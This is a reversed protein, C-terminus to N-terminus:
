ATADLDVDATVVQAGILVLVEIVSNELLQEVNAVKHTDLAKHEASLSAFDADMGLRELHQALTELWQGDHLNLVTHGVVGEVVGLQAIALAIDVENNVLAHLIGEQLAGSHNAGHTLHEVISTIGLDLSGGQLSNGATGASAGEDGVEVRQVDVHVHADGGLKVQFSQYNATELTNILNALVEAVLTHVAVVVGLEGAHLEINLILVVVPHHREGLLQELLNADGHITAGVAHDVALGDAELSRVAAKGDKVGDLLLSTIVEVAHVLCLNALHSM